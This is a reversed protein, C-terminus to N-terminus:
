ERTRQATTASWSPDYARANVGRGERRPALSCQERDARSEAQYADRRGYECPLTTTSSRQQDSNRAYWARRRATRAASRRSGRRRLRTVVALPSIEANLIVLHRVSGTSVWLKALASSVPHGRARPIARRPPPPQLRSPPRSVAARGPEISHLQTQEWEWAHSKCARGHVVQAPEPMARVVSPAQAHIVSSISPRRRSKGRRRCSVECAARLHSGCRPSACSCRPARPM